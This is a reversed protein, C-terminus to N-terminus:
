KFSQLKARLGVKPELMAVADHDTRSDPHFARSHRGRSGNNASKPAERRLDMLVIATMPGDGEM